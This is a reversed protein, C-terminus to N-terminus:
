ATAQAAQTARQIFLRAITRYVYWQGDVGKVAPLVGKSAWRTSTRAAVGHRSRFHSLPELDTTKFTHENDPRYFLQAM